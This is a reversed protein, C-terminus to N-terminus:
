RVSQQWSVLGCRLSCHCISAGSPASRVGVVQPALHIWLFSAKTKQFKSSSSATMWCGPWGNPGHFSFVSCFYITYTYVTDRYIYAHTYKYINTGIHSQNLVIVGPYMWVEKSTDVQETLTADLMSLIIEANNSVLSVSLGLEVESVSPSVTVLPGAM